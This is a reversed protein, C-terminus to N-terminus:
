YGAQQDVLGVLDEGARYRRVNECFSALNRHGRLQSARRHATDNRRQRFSV